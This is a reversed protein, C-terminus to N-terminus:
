DKGRARFRFGSQLEIKGQEVKILEPQLSLRSARRAILDEANYESKSTTSFSDHTTDKNATWVAM